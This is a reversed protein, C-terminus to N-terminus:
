RHHTMGPAPRPRRCPTSARTGSPPPNEGLGVDAHRAHPATGPARAVSARYGTRSAFGARDRRPRPATAAAVSTVARLSV